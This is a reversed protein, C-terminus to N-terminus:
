RITAGALAKCYKQSHDGKAMCEDYVLNYTRYAYVGGFIVVAIAGVVMWFYLDKM